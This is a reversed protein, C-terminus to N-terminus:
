DGDGKERLREVTAKYAEGDFKVKVQMTVTRGDRSVAVVTQSGDPTGRDIGLIGGAPVHPDFVFPTGEAYEFSAHPNVFRGRTNDFTLPKPLGNLEGIRALMDGVARDIRQKLTLGGDLDALQQPNLYTTM